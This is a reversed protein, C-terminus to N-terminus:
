RGTKTGDPGAHDGTGRGPFPAPFVVGHAPHDRAEFAGASPDTLRPSPRWTRPGAGAGTRSTPSPPRGEKSPWPAARRPGGFPRRGCAIAPGVTLRCGGSAPTSQPAGMSPRPSTALRPAFPSEESPCPEAASPTRM